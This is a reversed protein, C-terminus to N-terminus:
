VMTIISHVPRASHSLMVFAERHMSGGSATPTAQEPLRKNHKAASATRPAWFGQGGDDNMM